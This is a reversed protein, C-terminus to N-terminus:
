LSKDDLNPLRNRGVVRDIEERMKELVHPNLFMYIVSFGLASSLTDITAFVMDSCVMIMQEETFPYIV